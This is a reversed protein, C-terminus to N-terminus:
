LCSIFLAPYLSPSILLCRSLYLSIPLCHSLLYMLHLSHSPSLPVTPYLSLPISLCHSLSVIPNLRLVLSWSKKLCVSVSQIVYSYRYRVSGTWCRCWSAHEGWCTPPAYRRPTTILGCIHNLSGCNRQRFGFHPSYGWAMISRSCWRFTDGYPFVATITPHM